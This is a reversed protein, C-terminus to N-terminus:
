RRADECEAIVERLGTESDADVTMPIGDKYSAERGTRTAWWRGSATGWVHWGPFDDEVTRERPFAEHDANDPVVSTSGSM